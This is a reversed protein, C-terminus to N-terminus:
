NVPPQPFDDVRIVQTRAADATRILEADQTTIIGNEIGAELMGELGRHDTKYDQLGQRLKREAHDARIVKELADELRAIAEDAAQPIYIGETLRDRSASPILLQEAVRHGLKDAPPPFHRGLPFIMWHLVFALPRNPFNQLLGDIAQQIESLCHQCTWHLLAQDSKPRGQDEFRKLVASALYLHSLIDGLRASLSERRKLTGGLTMLAADTLLAFAASMRTLHRYYRRGPGSAQVFVFLSGSLGHFLTRLSNMMVFRIHGFLARDFKELSREPDAEGLAELERFVYPHSRIAGQGFIIMSRTLINAGEVTISIPVSQYARGMINHPGLCIGAGGLIDMADNVVTRMRETLHYKVIASIVSPKEGRDLATATLTRAADMMYTYAGIRALAEEVGEFRGIPLKFQTRIRAYAGVSRAALKGAGTSLAPLSIGRGDALCEMLMRWGQGIREQGGIIWDLPVFVDEGSNPGTMFAINLPNHRRGINVGATDTPILALTIGLNTEKGLLHDPDYLKFALGLLTAVPGLTIYRKEWTLRMGLVDKQDQFDQRCVIGYDPIAGADSGAHPNTLAFCPVDEGAALRPLYHKKQEETGYELLLKAPGLSNPVMVSVAATISRTAIKMVIASHALASYDLGGYSKPIILSFFGNTKIFAWADPPLDDREATIEWDNLMACLEDVPGDLFAQEEASLQPTPLQRLKKWKPRGSFLEGDWWVSGANLAERETQSMRPTIRRFVKLLPESIWRLRWNRPHEVHPNM